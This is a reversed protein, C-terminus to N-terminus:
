DSIGHSFVWTVYLLSPEPFLIGLVFSFEFDLCNIKKKKIKVMAVPLLSYSFSIVSISFSSFMAVYLLSFLLCFLSVASCLFPPSFCICLFSPTSSLSNSMKQFVTHLSSIPHSPLRSGRALRSSLEGDTKGEEPRHKM